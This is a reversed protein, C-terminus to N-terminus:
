QETGFIEDNGLTQQRKMIMLKLVFSKLFFTYQM